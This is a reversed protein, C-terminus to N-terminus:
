ASLEERVDEHKSWPVAVIDYETLASLVNKSIERKDDNLFAYARSENTRISTTDLWNFIMIEASNRIPNNITNIFREPAEPSKPIVFDFKQALGSQGIFAASPTYRIESENLWNEVDELFLSAIHPTALYFMDNVALMAQLLSHKCHAFNDEAAKIQLANNKRSVGHGNLTLQLLEKRKDSDLSCGEQLLGNITASDDTLLYEDDIKKLYIQIYDNNRDLYPATIESWGDNIDQWSTKDKLWTYYRDILSNMESM